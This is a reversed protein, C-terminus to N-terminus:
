LEPTTFFIMQTPFHVISNTISGKDFVIHSLGHKKAEIAAALGSPGAGIIVVDFIANAGSMSGFLKRRCRHERHLDAEAKRRRAMGCGTQRNQYSRHCPTRHLWEYDVRCNRRM